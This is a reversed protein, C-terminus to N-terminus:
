WTSLHFSANRRCSPILCVLGMCSVAGGLRSLDIDMQEVAEHIM